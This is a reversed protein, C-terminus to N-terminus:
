AARRRVILRDLSFRGPGVAVFALSGLALAAVLEWGNNAVFVGNSLHVLLWAGVTVILTLIAALPTLLGLVLLIGAGLEVVAAFAAAVQPLPVGMEAFAAGTGALTWEFFKQAGHAIFIAGLVVRAALLLTDQLSRPTPLIQATTTV